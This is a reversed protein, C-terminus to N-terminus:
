APVEAIAGLRPENTAKLVDIMTKSWRVERFDDAVQLVGFYSSQASNPDGRFRANDEISTFVGGAAAKEVWSKATAPDAKSLRMAVRLM